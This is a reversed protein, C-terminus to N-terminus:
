FGGKGDSSIIEMYKKENKLAAHMLVILTLLLIFLGTFVLPLMAAMLQLMPLSIDGAKIRELTEAPNLLLPTKIYIFAGAGVIILLLGPAAYRWLELLKKRRKLFEKAKETM